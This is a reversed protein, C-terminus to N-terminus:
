QWRRDGTIDHKRCLGALHTVQRRVNRTHGAPVEGWKPLNTGVNWNKHFTSSAERVRSPYYDVRLTNYGREAAEAVRLELDQYAGGPCHALLWSAEWMSVSLRMNKGVFSWTGSKQLFCKQAPSSGGGIADPVALAAYKLLERRKLDRLYTM